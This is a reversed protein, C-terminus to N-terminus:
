VAPKPNVSEIIKLSALWLDLNKETLKAQPLIQIQLRPQGQIMEYGLNIKFECGDEQWLCKLISIVAHM